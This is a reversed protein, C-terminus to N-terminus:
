SALASMTSILILHQSMLPFQQQLKMTPICQLMRPHTSRFYRNPIPYNQPKASIIKLFTDRFHSLKIWLYNCFWVDILISALM